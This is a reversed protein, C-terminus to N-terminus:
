AEAEEGEEEKLEEKRERSRKDKRRRQGREVAVIRNVKGKSPAWKAFAEDLCREELHM